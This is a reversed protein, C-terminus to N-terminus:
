LFSERGLFLVWLVTDRPSVGGLTCLHIWATVSAGPNLSPAKEALARMWRIGVIFNAWCTISLGPEYSSSVLFCAWNAM